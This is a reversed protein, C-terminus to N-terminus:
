NTVVFLLILLPNHLLSHPCPAEDIPHPFLLENEQAYFHYASPFLSALVNPVAQDHPQKPPFHAVSSPHVFSEQDTPSHLCSKALLCGLAYKAPKSM